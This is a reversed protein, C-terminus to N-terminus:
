IRANGGSPLVFSLAIRTGTGPQSEISMEGNFKKIRERVGQLGFHGDRLGPCNDPDFGSGDDRVSFM